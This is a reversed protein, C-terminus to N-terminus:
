VDRSTLRESTKVALQYAEVQAEAAAEGGDRIPQKDARKGYVLLRMSDADFVDAMLPRRALTPRRPMGFEWKGDYLKGGVLAYAFRAGTYARKAVSSIEDFFELGFFIQPADELPVVFIPEQEEVPKNPDYIRVENGQVIMLPDDCPLAWDQYIKGTTKLHIQVIPEQLLMEPPTNPNRKHFSSKADVIGYVAVEFPFMDCLEARFTWKDALGRYAVPLGSRQFVHTMLNHNVRTSWKGKGIMPLAHTNGWTVVDKNRAYCGYPDGKSAFLDKTKGTAVVPGLDTVYEQM